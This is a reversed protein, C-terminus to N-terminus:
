RARSGGKNLGTDDHQGGRVRRPDTAENKPTLVGLLCTLETRTGVIAVGYAPEDSATQRVCPLAGVVPTVSIDYILMHSRPRDVVGSCHRGQILGFPDIGCGSQTSNECALTFFYM